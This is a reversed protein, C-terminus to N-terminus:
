YGSFAQDLAFLAEKPSHLMFCRRETNVVTRKDSVVM